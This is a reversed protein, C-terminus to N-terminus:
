VPSELVAVLFYEYIKYGGIRDIEKMMLIMCRIFTEMHERLNNSIPLGLDM